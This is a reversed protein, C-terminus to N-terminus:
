EEVLRREEAHSSLSHEKCAEREVRAGGGGAMASGVRRGIEVGLEIRSGAHICPAGILSISILACACACQV